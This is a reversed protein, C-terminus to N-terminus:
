KSNKLSKLSELKGNLLNLRNMMQNLENKRKENQIFSANWVVYNQLFFTQCDIWINLPMQKEFVKMRDISKNIVNKAHDQQAYIMGDEIYCMAALRAPQEKIDYRSADLYWGVPLTTFDKILNYKQKFTKGDKTVDYEVTPVPGGKRRRYTSLCECISIFVKTISKVHWTRIESEDIKLFASCIQIRQSIPVYDVDFANEDKIFEGFMNVAPLKDIRLEEIRKEIKIQM